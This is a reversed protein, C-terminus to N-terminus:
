PRPLRAHRPDTSLPTARRTGPHAGQVVAPESASRATADLLRMASGSGRGLNPATVRRRARLSCAPCDISSPVTALAFTTETAHGQPCAFEYLPVTPEPTSAARRHADRHRHRICRRRPSPRTAARHSWRLSPWALRGPPSCVREHLLSPRQDPGVDTSCSPVNGTADGPLRSPRRGGSGRSARTGAVAVEDCKARFPGVGGLYPLVVRAKGPVNAGIYWSSTKGHLLVDSLM